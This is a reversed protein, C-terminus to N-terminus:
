TSHCGWHQFAIRYDSLSVAKELEALSVGIQGLAQMRTATNHPDQTDMSSVQPLERAVTGALKQIRNTEGNLFADLMKELHRQQSTMTNHAHGWSGKKNLWQEFDASGEDVSNALLSQPLILGGLLFM